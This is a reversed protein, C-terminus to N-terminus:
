AASSREFASRQEPAEAELRGQPASPAARAPRRRAAGQEYYAAPTPLPDVHLPLRGLRLSCFHVLQEVDGFSSLARATEPSAAEPSAAEPPAAETPAAETPTAETPTAEARTTSSATGGDLVVLTMQYASGTAFERSSIVQQDLARKLERARHQINQWGLVSLQFLRTQEYTRTSVEILYSERDNMLRFSRTDM